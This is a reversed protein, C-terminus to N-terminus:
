ESVITIDANEVLWRSAKMRSATERLIFGCGVQEMRDRILQPQQQPNITRCAELIDEENVVMKKHRFLADLSFGEILNQRTQMMMMMSFQQQGGNQEVFQEMNVNQQQLENRLNNMLNKQMAEYIPDAIKGEFRKALEAVTLQRKYLEYEASRAQTLQERISSKLMELNAFMPMNAAIWADNIAPIVRKQIEKITAVCDITEEIEKGAEDISPGSFSFKKTEGVEMGIISSDFGDPMLGAGTTYTRGETSLGPFAEGDKSAELALLVHDGKVVPHPDATAYEACQEAMDAIQKEIEWDAIELPPISISVKEYNSLEYEPKPEVELSFQYEQGRKLTTKATATPPYAPTLDKKDLAFPILCEAVQPEIVADLNKIGMSEEAVQAVTKGEQPRLKMQEAFGVEAAFFAKEVDEPSATVELRLRNDDLKKQTIKM